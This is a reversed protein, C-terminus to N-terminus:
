HLVRDVVWFGHRMEAFEEMARILRRERDKQDRIRRRTEEIIPKTKERGFERIAERPSLKRM